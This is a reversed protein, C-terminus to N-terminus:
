HSVNKSSRGARDQRGANLSDRTWPITAAECIQALQGRDFSPM